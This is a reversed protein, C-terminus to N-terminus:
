GEEIKYKNLKDIFIRSKFYKEVRQSLYSNMINNLEVRIEDHLTLTNMKSADMKLIYRCTEITGKHITKAKTDLPYCAECLIGGLSSFKYRLSPTSGCNICNNLEPKFGLIDFMQILFFLLVDAPNMESYTLFTLSNLLLYFLKHYEHAQYVTEDCLNLLYTGYAFGDLKAPLGYFTDQVTCQSVMYNGNKEYLIYEGYCFLQSASLLRSKPRRCGKITASLKGYERSFITVIRDYDRYNTYRTIVGNTKIISM